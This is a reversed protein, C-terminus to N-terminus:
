EAVPGHIHCVVILKDNEESEENEVVLTYSDEKPDSPCLPEEKLYNGDLLDDLDDPYVNGNELYYSEAQTIILKKNADCAKEQADVGAGTLNPIAILLLAGIVFLVILMEILTFGHEQVLKKMFRLKKM